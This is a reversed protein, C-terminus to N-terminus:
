RVINFFTYQKTRSTYYNRNAKRNAKTEAIEAKWRKRMVSFDSVENM